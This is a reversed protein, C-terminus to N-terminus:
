LQLDEHHLRCWQGRAHRLYCRRRWHRLKLRVVERGGRADGEAGVFGQQGGVSQFM